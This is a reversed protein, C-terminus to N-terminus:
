EVYPSKMVNIINEYKTNLKNIDSSFYTRIVIRGLVKSQGESNFLSIRNKILYDRLLFTPTEYRLGSFDSSNLFMKEFDKGTFSGSLLQIEDSLTPNCINEGIVISGYVFQITTKYFVKGPPIKEGAWESNIHFLTKVFIKEPIPIRDEANENFEDWLSFTVTTDKGGIKSYQFLVNEVYILKEPSVTKNCDTQGICNTFIGLLLVLTITKM